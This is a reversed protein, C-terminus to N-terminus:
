KKTAILLIYVKQKLMEIKKENLESKKNDVFNPSKEPM